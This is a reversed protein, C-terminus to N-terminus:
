SGSTFLIKGVNLKFDEGNAAVPATADKYAIPLDPHTAHTSKCRWLAGKVSRAGAALSPFTIQTVATSMDSQCPTLTARRNGADKAIKLYTDATGGSIADLTIDATTTASPTDAANNNTMLLVIEVDDSLDPANGTLCEKVFEPFVIQASM